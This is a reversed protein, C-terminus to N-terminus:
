SFIPSHQLRSGERLSQGPLRPDHQRLRRHHAADSFSPAPIRIALFTHSVKKLNAVTFCQNATTRLRKWRAGKANFVHVRPESDVDGVIPNLKRGHFYEYKKVFVEHAIEPDSVVLVKRQGENYGYVSGYEKTWERFKFVNPSEPNFLAPAQNEIANGKLHYPGPIGRRKWYM